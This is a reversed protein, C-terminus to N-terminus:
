DSKGRNNWGAGSLMLDINADVKPMFIYVLSYILQAAMQRNNFEVAGKIVSFIGEVPNTTLFAPHDIIEQVLMGIDFKARGLYSFFAEYRPADYHERMRRKFELTADHGTLGEHALENLLRQFYKRAGWVEKNSLGAAHAGVLINRLVHLLCRHRQSEPFVSRLANDIPGAADSM